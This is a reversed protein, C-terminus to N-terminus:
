PNSSRPSYHSFPFTFIEPKGGPPSGPLYLRLTLMLPFKMAQGPAAELCQDDPALALTTEPADESDGWRIWGQAQKLEELKVPHTHSDYLYLRFTGPPELVGELHHVNDLAMFFTGGHKSDHDRHTGPAPQQAAQSSPPEPAAAQPAETEVVQPPPTTQLPGPDQAEQPPQRNCSVALLGLVPLVYLFKPIKTM